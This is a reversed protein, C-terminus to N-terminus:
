NEAQFTYYPGGVIEKPYGGQKRLTANHFLSNGFLLRTIILEFRYLSKIEHTIQM